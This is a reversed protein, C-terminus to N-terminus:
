QAAMLPAATAANPAAAAAPAGGGATSSTTATAAIPAAAAAVRSEVVQGQVLEPLHVVESLVGLREGEQRLHHHAGCRVAVRWVCPM